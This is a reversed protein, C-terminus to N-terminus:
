VLLLNFWPRINNNDNEKCIPKYSSGSQACWYCVSLSLQDNRLSITFHKHQKNKPM